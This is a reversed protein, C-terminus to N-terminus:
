SDLKDSQALTVLSGRVILPRAVDGASRWEVPWSLGAGGLLAGGPWSWFVESARTLWPFSRSLARGDHDDPARGREVDGILHVFEWIWRSASAM